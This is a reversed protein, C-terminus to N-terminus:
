ANEKEKLSMMSIALGAFWGGGFAPQGIGLARHL